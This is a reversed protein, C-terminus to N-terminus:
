RDEERIEPYLGHERLRGLIDDLGAVFADLRDAPMAGFLLEAFERQGQELGEVTAVGHPTFTVLFARRDTPHPERTVFGSAALGDVLGTITRASVGLAEALDRQTVPGARRLTWLLTARSETLGERALGRTMDDGLVVVLELVRDLAGTWRERESM